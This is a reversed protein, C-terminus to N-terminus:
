LYAMWLADCQALNMPNVAKAIADIVTQNAPLNGTPNHALSLARKVISDSNVQVSERLQNESIGNRHSSTLWFIMEDRVFLTLAHELEYEPKVLCRAIAMLSCAFIGETALPGMLTQLNPTLRFPVPEPNHFFPKSTSMFSMLESGWINGSGRAINIKQPYRNHMYLIYTMFTLASLQYSFQRRFLWFDNFTPFIKQFYELAVTHPVWKQQIANFVEMRATMMQEPKNPASKSELAGRLKDMAFLVPEDKSMGNRRCHDEYIGQLTIYSTDEQVIRIHPALPVMLPLTFQLDRRRSEKKRSLTQNLQRFLQLIREERRCHRAAPHQIAWSHVSGDHGRMKLRRYSASISRVLDVNPLFREIRIFDQNKDKHQLYQGPVEVEDFKQYRFESLHPSFTELSVQTVRRDLKEEFKNRWHRLKHIYEYMTPKVDVFDAEFSKKIHSPLITEAFRTINTETAAPLKVSRAFSAPTRSVYALADNLLAVILRFADEDPPCKFHKQIQDVMTEMSLALLPFATKLVSMIEETLEWPPKKQGQGSQQDQAGTASGPTAAATSPVAPPAQSTENTDNGESKVVPTESSNATGPRSTTSSDPRAPEQKPLSPSASPKGNSAASQARQKAKEKAEQNKKIVLMDERNTRLQFYLAQPYSKAIKLLIQYVRPAEKHGLGTLLQPIFTIWYWIPTEGKFDDFGMAITGQADDLSLLWLIRALLKRSKANKYSGAAQLYSTLAQRAANLDAPDEKFKRDNFYGWEAWAKAAGIDFYLATGYASDAEAKQNLKELFMGKLTYFEAKQQPSFYNLNTNNIVDLGSSLEDANEYHCKAQERLKLFAEQIEINPLTYIRSLQSICVEPLSHKRAVHAFRNIIWATEHYGRYAFSSAGAANQQNQQPLLQLYTQNILSFIHQRWTVLDQWATIDDWVNPLRERWGGLLLKLEGSKVDLNNANTAALSQCIVSADHMEVLQQFNQLLPIHANTLGSPLQHWKRISLQIAEDCVRAFENGSEQQNHFKLLSMFAQFFARRPTPADMVGKIINDLAERHQEEQWMETNRWACELLLDQFNEHKAFDQLIDWQQLKQACLVWHDEWLTYEAQSFPIVSTRAKVQANEYLKQAKDWMGNQEYSLAANTEVFQCRRRWTGYFLDKEDLSAYLEVLADLNSERVVASDDGPLIANNELQVLATYWADYTKAEFKLVHPPLKCQPWTRATGEVLSQVVNPRKDIQRTHYDKTLVAVMGRELDTREDRATASWYMPFLALWLEHALQNDIHQLQALPEIIDRVRVDGIEAMFRRHSAMLSDFKDDAMITPERKTKENSFMVALQSASVARFDDAHLKITSNMDMGGLLLQSAQALWYSDALTDWNQSTLVYSLRASATKSLSKDFIAMFRNRMEVDAARTGILFAHEMRVTLETRAIKPDEYIRIVLELFKTLMTPDQRHEFSLMKHLVATKEKLTPWTGESRFIWGEVMRLIEECLEIHSSKEVLTALVSLFPRRSDGLSEMRLAVTQIEKIMLKTQVELEHPSMEGTSANSDQARAPGGTPHSAATNYHQVHERAHKSQLAKMLAQVHQEIVAPKRQGLSWLINVGSVYSGANMAETAIQSLYEVFGSNQPEADADADADEMPTDEPVADLIRKITPRIDRGSDYKKDALHLCDQIEPNESRLCKDLVKQVSAMNKQIWDDTKANLLIRVVQLTNIINTLFKDDYKEKDTPDANLISSTKESALIVDTVNPFLDLDIDGWLRPQVLNHLMDMAKKCLETGTGAGMYSMDRSKASPLQYRENLQAIFEILFKVMKQRFTVPILYGQREPGAAAPKTAAPPSAMPHDGDLKRKKSNPSESLARTTLVPSSKGEVRWREWTYILNMMNLALKKSEHSPNPPAAIKRLSSIIIVAYKDRNEYFLDPHRHLFQFISTMQQVNQGEDSLVRRPAMAWAPNRENPGTVCRKPLVLAILELAQTVLARGENQSTKLLSVYVQTVIKPPTEYHAIFYGIVVYAAHKNIVDDLRIFTWGFKIIDKRTDQLTTHYYKVLMASLQLVEFRTHDIGTQAQDDPTMEPHVKWIKTSVADIVSRDVLKSSKCQTTKNWNRQVDMAIIPNVIYHLLFYKMKNSSQKGSYVDLCRLFTLKWFDVSESCIVKDYIFSLLPQITHLDETTMYEVLSLLSDLDKPNKRLATVLIKIVHRVAQYAPLRLQAPLAHIRRQSELERGINKLWQIHEKKDLWGNASPFRSLSNLIHVTNVIAIFKTDNNQAVIENCKAILADVNKFAVERLHNSMPHRLTQALLRGYKLDDIKGLFYAWIETPYRNMFHYIPLRFPSQHTRRLKEELGLFCEILREKFAEAPPPLLHFINLIAAIVKMQPHQEFFTFSIPQWANPEVIAEIQDLLRAGIEVKFYSTLLKLLRSLNDLGASSLRKPDSLSALVPRLGAQLLDKPLRKEVSLVVRLAENAAAITPKSESYLCKFFVHLIKAKTPGNSFEEIPMATSLLKICSIRLSVIHEHTRYEAPKNALSEDNADALALSEMLLRNLNEDFKIWDSKLSMHYTMANIYGIQIAFPLARLPKAYIPQFFRDKYPELLEWVECECSKAILELSNKATERVHKNMHSLENNFQMCISALRQQRVPPQGPQQQIPLADAKKVNKTIRRLLVELSTQAMRRTKEPLDQPMDKIVYMLARIFDIQKSAVWGDGLDLETLLFNIGVSGGTKTFWEEEYCSHCFTNSLNNFFPFRGVNAESGMITALATHMERIAAQAAERVEPHDSAMAEVVADSICRTDVQLPGEGAKPDFPNSTRKLEVITRGVEIIALHQCLGILFANAEDKLDPLSHAFMLAKLLRKLNNDEEDKKAISRDRDSTEFSAFAIDPKRTQSFEQAQLRVIRPLDEPMQDYGIRLKLQARIFHLAQKKYYGDSQRQSNSKGAKPMEMLKQIASDVGLELPFAREKKSGILSVDFSSSDDAFKKYTLPVAATMFKRNRGGLKGLIRMTTHAHFHSYPHPKLHDFLATMLEDIVPAMIPDLYDATLNDVCLELTRLGQGVLDTGARLAVVLPRMLFSLHPLLHSLRAPVTLCLEVYLDREAPKRAAMLLNNLVDLLMELLPLIQKYLQEFKGGGISRFLSRLLLFYNMPEEAKTSLEISKTVINVVHPLLVQENQSAFLTVAMFALKFLRLLISSKKVDASGVQDIRDMLFQLLMGCFSPSTAESALFFQPIHLLATHEFIMDYLRPIEQQFIEHFTAPDICHFVTAFTELLEKEEKSSSVMYFNAMYEVPSMYQSEAAPKEIEYYRFVYAGEKFLKVIVHVEEATFGCSVERWHPPAQQLDVTTEVNCSRLQYFTNKLGNMLNKFLFKNDAVPDANRDRPNTTKIPVANFIDTEDWDPLPEKDALYTDPTADQAQQHYLKSLKVANPYQRNMAAFKDGIANLIMILYHRADVKNPMKAICEAMNLLLKASMTQFSTGPFNDQLNRTYVEVTKRIQAASLSDRVHHILDALTSYALPRMTEYVTLGDGTLTREDLLEDIKPLFIKKERPCDKLLRVVIEPLKPLFEQLQPSYQRLLYALFSMTKVQATIFEGFAARNKIAPSVGTHIEGRAAADAHAQKQASAEICLVNRILPVFSRVNAQVTSRYVQFISVVIIPCESLVKFSQMGKLLPRNQQQPDAGLDTVATVPSGPRPSQFNTTSGGPTSPAGTQAGTTASANDLQEKVVKEMQEFLDQILTLFQQVKPQLVKHQHRMVDSTIKVCLTANEENDTRVLQMMLDVVEEAYPEFPETPTPGTPLRHLVELVCNRLKQEPSNSQFICPGRLIGVFIPMLRKLFPPYIPGSTYHELSDRLTSAAEVKIKVDTEPTSLRKVVDDITNGGSM